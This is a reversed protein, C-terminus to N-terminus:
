DVTKIKQVKYEIRKLTEIIVSQDRRVDKLMEVLGTLVVTQKEVNGSLDLIATELTRRVYWIKVGPNDPDDKDHWEHLDHTEAALRDVKEVLNKLRDDKGNKGKSFKTVLHEALRILAMVVGVLALLVAKEGFGDESAEQALFLLGPFGWM